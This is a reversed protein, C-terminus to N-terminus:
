KSGRHASAKRVLKPQAVEKRVVKHVAAEVMATIQPEDMTVISLASAYAGLAHVEGADVIAMMADLEAAGPDRTRQALIGRLLAGALFQRVALGPADPGLAEDVVKRLSEPLPQAPAGPEQVGMAARLLHVLLNSLTRTERAARAELAARLPGPIRVALQADAVKPRNNKGM